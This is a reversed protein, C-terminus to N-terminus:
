SKLGDMLLDWDNEEIEQQSIPGLTEFKEKEESTLDELTSVFDQPLADGTEIVPLNEQFEQGVEPELGKQGSIFDIADFIDDNKKLVTGGKGMFENNVSKFYEQYLDYHIFRYQSIRNAELYDESALRHQGEKVYIRGRFVRALFHNPKLSLVMNLNLLAFTQKREDLNILAQNFHRRVEPNKNEALKLIPEYIPFISQGIKFCFLNLLNSVKKM